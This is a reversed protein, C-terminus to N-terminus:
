PSPFTHEAHIKNISKIIGDDLLIDLSQINESLQEINTAGIITSGLFPQQNVFALSMQAFSLNHQMALEAYKRTAKLSSATFYRKFEKFLTCRANDPKSHIYKGTLVGFALPSYALLSLKERHSIEALNLEFSRNLLNYPNQITVVRPLNLQDALNLYTMAGWATENSIGIARIKGAQIFESLACLTEEIPTESAHKDHQYSLSGFFNTHRDPWHLQYIDIYDTKLRQLSGDIAQQINVKDLRAKGNRIHKIRSPGTVKTALVIEHRNARQHIWKGIIRETNGYTNISTPIAYMEATDLFNIGQGIAFDLQDFAEEQSNQGGFTMTGLCLSSVSIDTNGLTHFRMM